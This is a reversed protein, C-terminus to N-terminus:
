AAGPGGIKGAGQMPGYIDVIHRAVVAHAWVPVNNAAYFSNGTSHDFHHHTDLAAKVPVQSVSRLTEM